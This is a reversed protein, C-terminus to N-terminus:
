LCIFKLYIWIDSPVASQSNHSLGAALLNLALRMGRNVYIGWCLLKFGLGRVQCTTGAAEKKRKKRWSLNAINFAEISKISCLCSIQLLIDLKGHGFPFCLAAFSFVSHILRSFPRTLFLFDIRPIPMKKQWKCSVRWPLNANPFDLLHLLLRLITSTVQQRRRATWSDYKGKEDNNHRHATAASVM